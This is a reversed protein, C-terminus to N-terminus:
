FTANTSFNLTFLPNRISKAPPDLIFVLMTAQPPAKFSSISATYAESGEASKALKKVPMKEGLLKYGLREGLAPQALQVYVEADVADTLTITVQAGAERSVQPVVFYTGPTLSGKVFDLNFSIVLGDDLKVEDVVLATGFFPRIDNLFAGALQSFGNQKRQAQLKKTDREIEYGILYQWGLMIFSLYTSGESTYESMTSLKQPWRLATEMMAKNIDETLLSHDPLLTGREYNRLEENVFNGDLFPDAEEDINIREIRDLRGAYAGGEAFRLNYRQNEVAPQGVNGDWGERPTRQVHAIIRGDAQALHTLMYRWGQPNERAIERDIEWRRGNEVKNRIYMGLGFQRRLTAPANPQPMVRNRPVFQGFFATMGGWIGKITKTLGKYNPGLRKRQVLSTISIGVSALSVAGSILTLTTMLWSTADATALFQQDDELYYVEARDASGYDATTNHYTGTAIRSATGQVRGYDGPVAVSDFELTVSDANLRFLFQFPQVLLRAPGQGDARSSNTLFDQAFYLAKTTIVSSDAVIFLEDMNSEATQPGTADLYFSRAIAPLYFKHLLLHKDIYLAASRGTPILDRNIDVTQSDEKEGRMLLCVLLERQPDDAALDQDDPRHRSYYQVSRPTLWAKHDAASSASKAAQTAVDELVNLRALVRQYSAASRRSLLFSAYVADAVPARAEVLLARNLFAVLRGVINDTNSSFLQSPLTGAPLATLNYRLAKFHKLELQMSQQTQQVARMSVSVDLSLQDTPLLRYAARGSYLLGGILPIRFTIETTADGATVPLSPDLSREQGVTRLLRWPGLEVAFSETYRVPDSAPILPTPTTLQGIGYLHPPCTVPVLGGVAELLMELVEHRNLAQAYWGANLQAMTREGTLALVDGQWETHYAGRMAAARVAAQVREAVLAVERALVTNYAQALLATREIPSLNTRTDRQIYRAYALAADPDPPQPRNGQEALLLSAPKFKDSYQWVKQMAKSLLQGLWAAVSLSDDLTVSRLELHLQKKAETKNTKAPGVQWDAEEWVQEIAPWLAGAWAENGDGGLFYRFAAAATKESHFRWPFRGVVEQVISRGALVFAEDTEADTTARGVTLLPLPEDVSASAPYQFSVEDIGLLPQLRLGSATSDPSSIIADDPGVAPYGAGGDRVTVYHGRVYEVKCDPTSADADLTVTETAWNSSRKTIRVYAIPVAEDEKIKPALM